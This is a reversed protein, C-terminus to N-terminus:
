ILHSPNVQETAYWKLLHYSLSFLPWSCHYDLPQGVVFSIWKPSHKGKVMSLHFLNTALCSNVAALAKSRYFKATLSLSWM